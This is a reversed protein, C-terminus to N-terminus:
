GPTVIQQLVDVCEQTAHGDHAASQLVHTNREPAVQSRRTQDAKEEAKTVEEAKVM